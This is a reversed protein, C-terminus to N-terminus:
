RDTLKTNPFVESTWEWPMENRMSKKRCLSKNRPHLVYGVILAADCEEQTPIESGAAARSPPQPNDQDTSLPNITM